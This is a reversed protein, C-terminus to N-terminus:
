AAVFSATMPMSTTQFPNSPPITVASMTRADFRPFTNGPIRGKAGVKATMASRATPEFASGAPKM